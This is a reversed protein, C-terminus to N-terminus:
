KITKGILVGVAIALGGILVMRLVSKLLNIKLFKASVIGLILLAFLSAGISWGFARNSDLLVYPALPVFGSIFYSFFMITGGFVAFHSPLKQRSHNAIHEEASKESLFSGVAMSFAEVFILVVGTLIINTREVGGAAIGSLLGVTSVLSDEIGFIFARSYVVFLNPKPM